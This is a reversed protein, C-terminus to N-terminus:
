KLLTAMTLCERSELRLTWKWGEGCVKVLGGEGEGGLEM